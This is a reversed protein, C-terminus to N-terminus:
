IAQQFQQRFLKKYSETLKTDISKFAICQFKYKVAFWPPSASESINILGLIEPNRSQSKEEGLKWILSLHHMHLM